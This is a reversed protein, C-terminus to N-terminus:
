RAIPKPIPGAWKADIKSVPYYSEAWFYSLYNQGPRMSLYIIEPRMIRGECDMWYYGPEIPAKETWRLIVGREVLGSVKQKKQDEKGENAM